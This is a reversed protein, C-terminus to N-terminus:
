GNNRKSTEKGKESRNNRTKAVPCLKKEGLRRPYEYGRVVYICDVREMFLM